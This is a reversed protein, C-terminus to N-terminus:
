ELIANVIRDGAQIVFDAVVRHFTLNSYFGSEVLGIFNRTTVPLDETFLRIKITGEGTELM